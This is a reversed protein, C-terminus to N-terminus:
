IYLATQLVRDGSKNASHSIALGSTMPCSRVIEPNFHAPFCVGFRTFAAEGSVSYVGAAHFSQKKVCGFASHCFPFQVM